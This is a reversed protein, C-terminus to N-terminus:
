GCQMVLYRRRRNKCVSYRPPRDTVITLGVFIASSLSIGNPKHLRLRTPGLFWTHSALEETPLAIKFPFPQGNHFIPLVTWICGKTLNSQGSTVIRESDPEILLNATFYNDFIEGCRLRTAVSRQSIDTHSFVGHELVSHLLSHALSWM